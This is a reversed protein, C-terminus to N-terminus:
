LCIELLYELIVSSVVGRDVGKVEYSKSAFKKVVRLEFVNQADFDFLGHM